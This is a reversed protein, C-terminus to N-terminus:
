NSAFRVGHWATYQKPVATGSPDLRLLESSRSLGPFNSRTRAKVLRAEQTSQHGGFRSAFTKASWARAQQTNTAWTNFDTLLEDSMVHSEPDARLREDWYGLVLDTEKRWALTDAQVIGPHPPMAMDADYWQRAGEIIWRLFAKRTQPNTKMRHKIGADGWREFEALEPLDADAVGVPRSRFTFPFRVLALRRWTGHDTENVVPTYNSTAFVSHTADWTESSKYLHHGKMQSTGAVKKLRVVDLHAAEPLEEIWTSRAGKLDMTEDRVANGMLVQDAIVTYYSGLSYAIGDVLTSKANKGSGQLLCVVDDPTMYGTASQGVRIQLWDAVEEPLASLVAKLDSSEATPDYEVGTMKTMLLNPDHPLLEGTRLNVVGNPCNLLDPDADLDASDFALIGRSLSVVASIRGRGLYERWGDIAMAGGPGGTGALQQDLVAQFRRTVYERVAEVVTAEDVMKWARGSWEIWGTGPSWRFRDELLDSSVSEAMYADTFTGDATDTLPENPSAANKLQPLTGGAAFFADAGNVAIGSVTSPVTLYYVRDVGKTGILWQGLRAMARMVAKDHRTDSDFCLVVQRGSLPIDDWDALTRLGARWRFLGPLSAACVGQSTLSDAKEIGETLWLTVSPDAINDRNRPHVDIRNTKGKPGIHQQAQKAGQNVPVDPRYQCAVREGRPDYTPIVIGDHHAKDKYVAPPLHLSKLRGETETDDSSVSFYGRESAVDATIAAESLLIAAHHALLLDLSHDTSVTRTSEGPETWEDDLSGAPWPVFDAPSIQYQERETGDITM